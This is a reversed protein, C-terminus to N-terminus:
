ALSSSCYVHEVAHDRLALMKCEGRPRGDRQAFRTSCFVDASTWSMEIHVFSESNALELRGESKLEANLPVVVDETKQNVFM